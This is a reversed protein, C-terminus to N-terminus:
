ENKAPLTNSSITIPSLSYDFYEINVETSGFMRVDTVSRNSTPFWFPGRKGYTHVFHVDKTWFSPNRAPEAEIRVVAYEEADIWIRGRMLYKNATKPTVKLEYAPRGDVSRIGVMEFAYNEPLIRSRDRVGPKSAEAEADLLRPFVHKIAGGWGSQSVTEFQKSGDKECTLHVLMEARKHHHQNELVYRRSATYGQLASQRENDRAIMKAVVEDATPLPQTSQAFAAAISIFFLIVRM